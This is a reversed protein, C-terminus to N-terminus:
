RVGVASVKRKVVRNGDVGVRRCTRWAAPAALTWRPWPAPSASTSALVIVVRVERRGLRGLGLVRGAGAAGLADRESRTARQDPLAPGQLCHGSCPPCSEVIARYAERENRPHM